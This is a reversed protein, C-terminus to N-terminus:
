SQRSDLEPHRILNPVIVSHRVQFLVSEEPGSDLEPHRILNLIVTLLHRVQFLTSEEPGSDLEPHRILNLIVTLSRRVQFLTSAKNTIMNGYLIVASLGFIELKPKGSKIITGDCCVASSGYCM